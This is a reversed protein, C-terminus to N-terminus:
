YYRTILVLPFLLSQVSHYCANRSNLTSKFEEYMHNQDTLTTRVYKFKAEDEFPRNGIKISQEQGIKLSRSMLMYKTKNQIV